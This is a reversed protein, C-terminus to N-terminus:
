AAQPWDVDNSESPLTETALGEVLKVPSEEVNPRSSFVHYGYDDSVTQSNALLDCWMTLVPWGALVLAVTSFAAYWAVDADKEFQVHHRFLKQGLTKGHFYLGV